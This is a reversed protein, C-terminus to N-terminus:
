SKFEVITTYKNEVQEETIQIGIEQALYQNILAGVQTSNNEQMESQANTFIISNEDIVVEVESNKLGYKCINTVINTIIHNLVKPNIEVILDKQIIYNFTFNSSLLQNSKIVAKIESLVKVQTSSENLEYKYANLLDTILGSMKQVQEQIIENEVQNDDYPEIGLRNMELAAEINSIPNKLEHSLTMILIKKLKDENKIKNAMKYFEGILKDIENQSKSDVTEFSDIEKFNVMEEELVNLKSLISRQFYVYIIILILIVIVSTLIVAYLLLKNLDTVINQNLVAYLVAQNNAYVVIEEEEFHCAINDAIKYEPIQETTVIFGAEILYESFDTVSVNGSDYYSYAAEHKFHIYHESVYKSTSFGIVLVVIIITTFLLIIKNKIKM